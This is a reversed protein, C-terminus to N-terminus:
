SKKPRIKSQWRLQKGREAAHKVVFKKKAEKLTEATGIFV